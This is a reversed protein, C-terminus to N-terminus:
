FSWINANKNRLLRHLRNDWDFTLNGLELLM